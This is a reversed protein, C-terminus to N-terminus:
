LRFGLEVKGTNIQPTKGAIDSGSWLSEVSARVFFDRNIDYRVGVAANYAFGSDGYTSTNCYWYWYYPSCYTQGTSINTDVSSWGIGAKVYPTFAGDFFHWTGNFQNQYNDAKHSLSKGDPATVNYRPSTTAFEWNLLLNNTYNYGLSFGWGTTGEVKLTSESEASSYNQGDQTVVAISTEWTNARKMGYQAYSMSSVSLAVLAILATKFM